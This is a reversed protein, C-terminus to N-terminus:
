KKQNSNMYILFTPVKSAEFAKGSDYTSGDVKYSFLPQPNDAKAVIPDYQKTVTNYDAQAVQTITLKTGTGPSSVDFLAASKNAAYLLFVRHFSKLGVSGYAFYLEYNTKNELPAADKASGFTKLLVGDTNFLASVGEMKGKLSKQNNKVFDGLYQPVADLNNGDVLQLTWPNATTAFPDWVKVLGYYNGDARLAGGAACLLGALALFKFVAPNQMGSHRRQTRAKAAALSGKFTL